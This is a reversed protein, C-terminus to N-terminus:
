ARELVLLTIGTGDPQSEAILYAVASVTIPLGVPNTPVDASACTFTPQSAAMGALGVNGLAYPADLIGRVTTGGLQASVGFDAFYTSYDEAFM